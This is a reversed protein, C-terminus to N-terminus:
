MYEITGCFTHTRDETNLIAEKCMGFDTLAIHGDANLMINEPKLDRYIIGLSHLHAIALVLEAAYFSHSPKLHPITLVLRTGFEGWGGGGGGEYRATPELFMGERDLYMFLEGGSLYQLILYLKGDTQFAYKLDVIFPFKVQELINRESKTHTIDKKSRVIAAKKLVKMAYISGSDAGDRKRVQFVQLNPTLPCPSCSSRAAICWVATRVKGYGGQGIVQTHPHLPHSHLRIDDCSTQQTTMGGGGDASQQAPAADSTDQAEAEMQRLRRRMAQAQEVESSSHQGRGSWSWAWMSLMM